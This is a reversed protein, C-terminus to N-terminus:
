VLGAKTDAILKELEMDALKVTKAAEDRKKMIEKAKAKFSEVKAKKFDSGISNIAGELDIEDNMTNEQQPTKPVVSIM